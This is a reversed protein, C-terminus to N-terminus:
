DIKVSGKNRERCIGLVLERHGVQLPIIDCSETLRKRAFYTGCLSVHMFDLGTSCSLCCVFSMACLEFFESLSMRYRDIARQWNGLRSAKRSHSMGNPSGRRLGLLKVVGM